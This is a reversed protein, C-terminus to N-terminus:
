LQQALARCSKKTIAVLFIATMSAHVSMQRGSILALNAFRIEDRRAFIIKKEGWM